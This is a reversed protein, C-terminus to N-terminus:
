PKRLTLACTQDLVAFNKGVEERRYLNDLFLKMEARYDGAPVRPGTFRVQLEKTQSAFIPESFKFFQEYTRPGHLAHLQIVGFPVLHVNGQNRVKVLFEPVQGSESGPAFTLVKAALTEVAQPRVYIPIGIRSQIKFKQGFPQQAFFLMVLCEGKIQDPTKLAVQLVLREEPKLKLHEASCHLWQSLPQPCNAPFWYEPEVNLEVNQSTHNFLSVQAVHTQGPHLAVQLSLPEIMIQAGAFAPFVLL